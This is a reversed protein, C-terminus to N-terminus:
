PLDLAWLDGLPGDTGLGGYLLTRESEPDDALAAGSRAPPGGPSPGLVTAALSRDDFVVVDALLGDNEGIGGMVVGGHGTATWAGRDRPTADDAKQWTGGAADPDFVWLDGLRASPPGPTLGGHVVLRDDSTWWCAAGSRVSPGAGAERQTWTSPGPDYIWLESNAAGAPGEGGYMWLRGDARMALCAAARASPRRGAVALPRWANAGPDFAWFDDLPGADTRGGFVVLGVGDIWAAGHEFRPGPRKGSSPVEAWRDATLDYSWADGLAGASGRGGFLYAVASSPDVTWAHGSRADPAPSTPTIATWRAVGAPTDTAPPTTSTTPSPSAADSTRATATPSSSAQSPSATSGPGNGFALIAAVVAVAVLVAMVILVGRSPAARMPRAV